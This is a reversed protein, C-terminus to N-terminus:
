AGVILADLIRITLRVRSCAEPTPAAHVTIEGPRCRRSGAPRVARRASGRLPGCAPRAGREIGELWEEYNRSMARRGALIAPDESPFRECLLRYNAAVSSLGKRLRVLEDVTPEVARPRHRYVCSALGTYATSGAGTVELWFCWDKLTALGPDFREVLGERRV